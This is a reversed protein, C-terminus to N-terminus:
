RERLMDVTLSAAWLEAHPLMPTKIFQACANSIRHVIALIVSPWRETATAFDTASDRSLDYLSTREAIM